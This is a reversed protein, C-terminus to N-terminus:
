RLVVSLGFDDTVLRNSLTASVLAATVAVLIM